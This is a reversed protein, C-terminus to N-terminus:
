RRAIRAKRASLSSPHALISKRIVDLPSSNQRSALVDGPIVPVLRTGCAAAASPISKLLKQSRMTASAFDVRRPPPPCHHSTCSKRRSRNGPQRRTNLRLADPGPPPLQEHAERTLRLRRYQIRALHQRLLELACRRMREHVRNQQTAAIWQRTRREDRRHESVPGSREGYNQLAIALTRIRELIHHTHHRHHLHQPLKRICGRAGFPHYRREGGHGSRSRSVRERQCRAITRTVALDQPEDLLCMGGRRTRFNHDMGCRGPLFRREVPSIGCQELLCRDNVAVDHKRKANGSWNSGTLFGANAM